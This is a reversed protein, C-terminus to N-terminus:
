VSIFRWASQKANQKSFTKVQKLTEYRLNTKHLLM